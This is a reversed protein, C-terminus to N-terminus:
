PEIHYNILSDVYKRTYLSMININFDTKIVGVGKSFWMNVYGCNIYPTVVTKAKLVNNVETVNNFTHGNITMTENIGTVSGEILLDVPVGNYSMSKTNTWTDGVFSSDKQVIAMIYNTKTGDMDILMTFNHDNKAFYEPTVAQTNTDITQYYNFVFDMKLSDLGTAHRKIVNGDRSAYMWWSGNSTSMYDTISQNPTIIHENDGVKKKCSSLLFSFVFLIVISKLISKM